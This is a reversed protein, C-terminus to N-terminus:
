PTPMLEHISDVCPFGDVPRRPRTSDPHAIAYVWRLGHARAAHLVSPSDDVFLTREKDYPEVEQLRSWFEPTEKPTGFPHSSYIADFHGQFDLQEDKLALVDPHANTVLALRKGRARVRHVFAEAQPLWAIHERSAQKLKALELKLERAWYDVSYWDLTGQKAAFMPTLRSKAEQLTLGYVLAYHAPVRELWFQHDFKLDLITGDMDLLVTDIQDWDPANPPLTPM